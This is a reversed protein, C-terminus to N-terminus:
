DMMFRLAAIAIHTGSAMNRVTQRACVANVFSAMRLIAFAPRPSSIRSLVILAWGPRYVVAGSSRIERLLAPTVSLTIAAMISFLALPPPAGIGAPAVPLEGDAAELGAAAAPGTFSTPTYKRFLSAHVSRGGSTTFKLVPPTSLLMPVAPM